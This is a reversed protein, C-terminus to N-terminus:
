NKMSRRQLCIFVEVYNAPPRFPGKPITFAYLQSFHMSAGIWPNQPAAQREIVSSRPAKRHTDSVEALISGVMRFEEASKDLAEQINLFSIQVESQQLRMRQLDSCIRQHVRQPIDDIKRALVANPPTNNQNQREPLQRLPEISSDLLSPVTDNINRTIHKLLEELKQMFSNGRNIQAQEEQFTVGRFSSISKELLGPIM